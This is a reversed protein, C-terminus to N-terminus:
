QNSRALLRFSDLIREGDPFSSRPVSLLFYRRGVVYGRFVRSVGEFKQEYQHGPYDGLSIEKLSGRVIPRKTLKQFEKAGKKIETKSPTWPLTGVTLTFLSKSGPQGIFYRRDTSGDFGAREQVTLESPTTIAFDDASYVYEKWQDNQFCEALTPWVLFVFFLTTVSSIKM